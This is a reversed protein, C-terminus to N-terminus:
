ETRLIIHVGSDTEVLGSMEGVGLAFAADEFARQMQGRSFAGLDGGSRASSCHSETSALSAFAAALAASADAASASAGIIRERFAAVMARAEDLSRTVVPEKWSSPRRSGSHKVLLHRARVSSPSAGSSARAAAASGGGECEFTFSAVAAGSSAGEAFFSFTSGGRLAAPKNLALSNGDLAVAARPSLAILFTRGDSHHVLAAAHFPGGTSPLPVYVDCHAPDTGFVYASQKQTKFPNPSNLFFFSSLDLLDNLDPMSISLPSRGARLFTTTGQKKSVKRDTEISSSTADILRSAGTPTTAWPPLKFAM